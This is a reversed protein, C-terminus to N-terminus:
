TIVQGIPYVWLLHSVAVYATHNVSTPLGSVQPYLRPHTFCGSLTIFLLLYRLYHSIIDDFLIYIELYGSFTIYLM